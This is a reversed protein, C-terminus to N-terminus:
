GPRNGRALGVVTVNEIPVLGTRWSETAGDLLARVRTAEDVIVVALRVTGPPPTM